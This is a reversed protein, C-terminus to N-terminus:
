SDSDSRGPVTKMRGRMAFFFSTGALILLVIVAPRTLWSFGYSMMSRYLYWEMLGGLVLGLILAPRPYGFRRMFYGGIGFVVVSLLDAAAGTVSFADM